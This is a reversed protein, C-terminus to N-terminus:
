ISTRIPLRAALAASWSVRCLHLPPLRFPVAPLRAATVTCDVGNYNGLSSCIILAFCCVTLFFRVFLNIQYPAMKLQVVINFCTQFEAKISRSGCATSDMMLKNEVCSTFWNPKFGWYKEASCPVYLCMKMEHKHWKWPVSTLTDHFFCRQSARQKLKFSDEAVISSSFASHLWVLTATMLLISSFSFHERSFTCCTLPNTLNRKVTWNKNWSRKDQGGVHGVLRM